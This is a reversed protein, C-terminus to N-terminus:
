EPPINNVNLGALAKAPLDRKKGAGLLDNHRILKRGSKV